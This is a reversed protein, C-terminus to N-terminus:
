QPLEEEIVVIRTKPFFNFETASAATYAGMMPSIICDGPALDPLPIGEYVVDVSDCTPGAVVARQRPSEDGELERLTIVSYDCHDYLKGSYSGYLGEDLYYWRVGNRDSKGMVSSVLTMAPASIFRGPEAILRVGPFTRELENRIPACFDQIPLMPETYPVPFGGGIDLTDLTIGELAALSFLRRCFGIAELYKGANSCQSGVHFALGRVTLGMGQAKLLLDLAEHPQVGFKYSLDVIAEPSRFSLRMLLQIRDAYPIFKPLEYPNDFVFTTIGADLAYRIDSDRKIPHTHIIRGPAISQQRVVDVEGNSCVDFWAQEQDLAAVVAPHPLPKLAYHPEVGPLAARFARYQNRVVETSLLLLPAGHREICTRITTVPPLTALYM